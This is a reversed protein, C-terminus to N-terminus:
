LAPEFASCLPDFDISALAAASRYWLEVPHDTIFGHGGLVQIADRTAQTAVVGCFNVTNTTQRELDATDGSDIQSAVALADVKAAAIRISGDALMFSVGQFASIPKGFAIRENAYKSAYDVARQATGLEAAALLLRAQSIALTLANADALSGGLVADAAVTTDFVVTSLRAADLAIHRAPEAIAVGSAAPSVLAARLGGDAPDIGVVVLPDATVANAVALKTGRVVWSGTADATITTVSESPARGHGEYLALASHAKADSAFRPLISQKQADTGIAGVIAAGLGSWVAAMILGPDGYALAEVAAFQTLCSPRGGGGYTEDVPTTLGTEFLASRVADSVSASIEAAKAAPSLIDAALAHCMSVVAATEDSVDLDFM